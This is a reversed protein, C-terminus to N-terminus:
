AGPGSNPLPYITPLQPYQYGGGVGRGRSHPHGFYPTEKSYATTYEHNVSRVPQVMCQMDIEPEIGVARFQLTDECVMSCYDKGPVVDSSGCAECKGTDM